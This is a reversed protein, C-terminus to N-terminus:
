PGSGGRRPGGYSAAEPWQRGSLSSPERRGPRICIAILAVLVAGALLGAAFGAWAGGGPAGDVLRGEFAYGAGTPCTLSPCSLSPCDCHVQCPPCTPCRTAWATLAHVLSPASQGVVTALAPPMRSRGAAQWPAGKFVQAHRVCTALVM